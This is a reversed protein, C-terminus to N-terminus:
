ARTRALPRLPLVGARSVQRAKTFETVFERASLEGSTFRDLMVETADNAEAVKIQLQAYL